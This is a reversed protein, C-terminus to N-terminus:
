EDMTTGAGVTGGEGGADGDHGDAVTGELGGLTLDGDEISVEVGEGAVVDGRGGVEVFGPAM